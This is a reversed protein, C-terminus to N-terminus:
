MCVCMRNCVRRVEESHVRTLLIASLLRQLVVAHVSELWDRRVVPTHRVQHQLDVSAERCRWCATWHLQSGTVYSSGHGFYENVPWYEWVVHALWYRFTLGSQTNRFYSIHKSCQNTPSLNSMRGTSIIASGLANNNPRGIPVSGLRSYGTFFLCILCVGYATLTVPQYRHNHHYSSSLFMRMDNAGVELWILMLVMGISPNKRIPHGEQRGVLLM